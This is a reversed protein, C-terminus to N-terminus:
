LFLVLYCTMVLFKVQVFIGSIQTSQHGIDIERPMYQSSSWTESAKLLNISYTEQQSSYSVVPNIDQWLTSIFRALVVQFQRGAKQSKSTILISAKFSSESDLLFVHTSRQKEDTGINRESDSLLQSECPPLSQSILSCQEDHFFSIFFYDEQFESSTHKYCVKYGKGLLQHRMSM